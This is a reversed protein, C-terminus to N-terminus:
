WCTADNGSETSHTQHHASDLMLTGCEPDNHHRVHVTGPVASLVICRSVPADDCPDARLEYYSKDPTEGSWWKFPPDPRTTANFPLYAHHVTM